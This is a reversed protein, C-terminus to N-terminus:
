HDSPFMLVQHEEGRELYLQISVDLDTYEILQDVIHPKDTDEKAYFAGKDNDVDFAIILFDYDKLKPIYSGVVDLIWYAEHKECFDRVSDTYLYGFLPHKWWNDTGLFMPDYYSRKMKDEVNEIEKPV